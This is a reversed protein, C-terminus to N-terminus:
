LVIKDFQLSLVGWASTNLKALICTLKLNIFDLKILILFFNAKRQHVYSEQTCGSLVQVNQPRALKSMQSM